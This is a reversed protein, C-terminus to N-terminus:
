RVPVHVSAAAAGARPLGCLSTPCPYRYYRDNLYRTVADLEDDRWLAGLERDWRVVFARVEAITRASRPDRQHVSKDHCGGCRADYLARGRLFEPSQAFAAPAAASIATALVLVAIRTRM